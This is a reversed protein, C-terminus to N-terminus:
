NEFHIPKKLMDFCEEFSKDDDKKIPIYKSKYSNTFSWERIKEKDTEYYYKGDFYNNEDYIIARRQKRSIGAVKHM